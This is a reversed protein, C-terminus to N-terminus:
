SSVSSTIVDLLEVVQITVTWECDNNSLINGVNDYWSFILKDLKPIPIQFILPNAIITQSYNGYTNLLLKGYYSKLSGTTDQSLQLNEKSGTDIQNMNFEPNLRLNIYEDLIKYASQAQFTTGFQTDTKDYGLNFGLGWNDDINRYQSPLSTKWLIQYLLSDTYRQRNASTSPIIAGLDTNIFNSLLTTTSSNISTIQTLGTNYQTYLTIFTTIFEGFGSINSITKGAYGEIAGAGFVIGSSPIIFNSNFQQIINAYNSNFLTPSTISLSIENSLDNIKIYGFDYKNPLSFRLMVQSKETPSYGRLAIYYPTAQNSLPIDLDCANFYYGNSLNFNASIYNSTSEQGWKTSIDANMTSLSDYAFIATHPYEPWKIGNIDVMPNYSREQKTMVIRQTPYFIQYANSVSVPYDIDDGRNGWVTSYTNTNPTSRNNENFIIWLSGSTGGAIQFPCIPNIGSDKIIQKSPVYTLNSSYYEANLPDGNVPVYANYTIGEFYTATPLGSNNAMDFMDYSLIVNDEYPNQYITVDSFASAQSSTASILNIRVISPYINSNSYKYVYPSYINSLNTLINANSLTIHVPNVYFLGNQIYDATSSRVNSSVIIKNRINYISTTPMTYPGVSSFSTKATIFFRGLQEYPSQLIQYSPSLGPTLGSIINSLNKIIFFDQITDYVSTGKTVGITIIPNNNTYNITNQISPLDLARYEIVFTFGLTDNYNFSDISTIENGSLIPLLPNTSTGPLGIPNVVPIVTNLVIVGVTKIEYTEPYFTEIILTYTYGTTVGLITIPNASLGLFAFVSNNGSIGVIQTNPFNRFFMDLSLSSENDNLSFTYNSTNTTYNYLTFVGDDEYLIHNKVRFFINTFPISGQVNKLGTTVLDFEFLSNTRSSIDQAYLYQLLTAGIPTSQEYKSQSQDIGTPPGFRPDANIKKTPKIVYEGTPVSQGDIYTASANADSYLPYPVLSGSLLSYTTINSNADFPVISYYANSDVIMEGPTQAFGNLYSSGSVKIWEYYTGGVKDFGGQTLDTQPLYTINSYTKFIMLANNLKINPKTLTNLYSAPFIGLYIINRNTDANSDIYSSRLMIRNVDWVGDDPILSIGIVGSGLSLQKDQFTYNSLASLLTPKTFIDPYVIDQVYPYSYLNIKNGSVNSSQVYTDPLVYSQNATNPLFIQNYWHVVVTQRTQPTIPVQYSFFGTDLENGNGFATTGDLYTQTTSNYYVNSGIYFTFNNIPDIRTTSALYCNSLSNNVYGVYDTLDSSVNNSDYGMPIVFQGPSAYNSDAGNNVSLLNLDIPLKIYDPDANQAYNFDTLHQLPDALPDFTAPVNTSLSIIETNPKFYPFIQFNPITISITASSSRFIIYYQHGAYATFSPDSVNNILTIVPLTFKMKYHLPNENRVNKVDAMFAGADHYLYIITEIPRILESTQVRLYLKYKQPNAVPDTGPPIPAYFRSYFVTTNTNFVYWSARDTPWFSSSNFLSSGFNTNNQTFGYITLLTTEIPTLINTNDVFSYSNNFLATINSNYSSYASSNYNPYRYKTPRPFSAVKLTQRCASNFQFITYQESNINTIMNVSKYLPNQYIKGTVDTFTHTDIADSILNYSPTSAPVISQTNTLGTLQPWYQQVQADYQLLLNSVILPIRTASFTQRILTSQLANQLPLQNNKNSFYSIDYTNYNIGFYISLYKQIRNYMDVLVVLLVTNTTNQITYQQQTIGAVGLSLLFYNNYKANLLSTLSTNLSTSTITILSNTLSYSVSYKNILSYRFTHKIRYSDLIALNNNIVENVVVDDLGQFSYICRTIVTEPLTVSTYTLTLDVASPGYSTDLLLEKLVPYYYANTIKKPDNTAGYVLSQFYKQVIQTMTPNTIFTKNVADYYNDGPYNFNVSYDGQASFLKQFDYIGNQFDYFIPTRNLQLNIETALTDITYAGERISVTIPYYTTGYENAGKIVGYADQLYRGQEQITISLNNKSSSFYFFSSRFNIQVIQFNTINRYTRPLRLTLNTPQPYVNKDRDRSDLMIMSTTPTKTSTLVLHAVGSTDPVYYEMAHPSEFNIQEQNTPLDPGAARSLQLQSAFQRYNPQDQSMSSVSSQTDSDDTDSEDSDSLYPRYYRNPQQAMRDM